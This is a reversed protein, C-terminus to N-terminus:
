QRIAVFAHTTRQQNRAVSYTGGGNGGRQVELARTVCRVSAVGGGQWWSVFFWQVLAPIVTVIVVVGDASAGERGRAAVLAAVAEAVRALITRALAKKRSAERGPAAAVNRARGTWNSHSSWPLSKSVSALRIARGEGREDRSTSDLL